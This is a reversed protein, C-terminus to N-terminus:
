QASNRVCVLSAMPRVNAISWRAGRSKLRLGLTKTQGEVTESGIARGSALRERYNLRQSLKAFHGVLKETM